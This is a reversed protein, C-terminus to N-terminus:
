EKVRKLEDNFREVQLRYTAQEHQHIKIWESVQRVDQQMQSISEAQMQQLGDILRNSVTMSDINHQRISLSLGHLQVWWV